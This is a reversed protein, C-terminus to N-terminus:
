IRTRTSFFKNIVNVGVTFGTSIAMTSNYLGMEQISKPNKHKRSASAIQFKTSNKSQFDPFWSQKRLVIFNMYTPILNGM